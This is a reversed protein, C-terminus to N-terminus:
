NKAVMKDNDDEELYALYAALCVDKGKNSYGKLGLDKLTTRLEVATMKDPAVAVVENDKVEFAGKM